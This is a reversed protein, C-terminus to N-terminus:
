VHKAATATAILALRQGVLAIRGVVADVAQVLVARRATMASLTASARLSSVAVSISPRSRCGVSSSRWASCSHDLSRCNQKSRPASNRAPSAVLFLGRERAAKEVKVLPQEAVQAFSADAVGLEVAPADLEIEDGGRELRLHDLAPLLVVEGCRGAPWDRSRAGRSDGSGPWRPLARLRPLACASDLRGAEDGAELTPRKWPAYAVVESPVRPADVARSYEAKVILAARPAFGIAPVGVYFKVPISVEERWGASNVQLRTVVFHLHPEVV